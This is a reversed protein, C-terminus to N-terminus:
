AFIIAKRHFLWAHNFLRMELVKWFCFWFNGSGCINKKIQFSVFLGRSPVALRSLVAEDLEWLQVVFPRPLLTRVERVAVRVDKVWGEMLTTGHTRLDIVPDDRPDHILIKFGRDNEYSESEQDHLLLYMNNFIGSIAVPEGPSPLRPSLQPRTRTPVQM